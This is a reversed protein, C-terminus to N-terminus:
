ISGRNGYGEIRNAHLGSLGVGIVRAGTDSACHNRGQHGTLLTPKAGYSERHARHVRPSINKKERGSGVTALSRLPRLSFFYPNFAASLILPHPVGIGDAPAVPCAPCAPLFKM